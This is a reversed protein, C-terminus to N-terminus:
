DLDSSSLTYDSRTAERKRHFHEGYGAQSTDHVEALEILLSAAIHDGIRDGIRWTM